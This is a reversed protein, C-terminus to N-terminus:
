PTSNTIPGCLLVAVPPFGGHTEQMVLLRIAVDKVAKGSPPIPQPNITTPTPTSYNHAQEINQPAHQEDLNARLQHTQQAYTFIAFSVALVILFIKKMFNFNLLNTIDFICFNIGM